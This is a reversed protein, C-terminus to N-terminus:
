MLPVCALSLDPIFLTLRSTSYDIYVKQSIFEPSTQIETCFTFWLKRRNERHQKRMQHTSALHTFLMSFRRFKLQYGVLLWLYHRWRGEIKNRLIDISLALIFMYYGPGYIRWNRWSSMLGSLFFTPSRGRGGWSFPGAGLFIINKIKFFGVLFRKLMLSNHGELPPCCYWDLQFSTWSRGEAGRDTM